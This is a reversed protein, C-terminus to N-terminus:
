FLQKQDQEFVKKKYPKWSKRWGEFDKDFHKHLYEQTKPDTLYGSGFDFGAKKTLAKTLRDRTVKALISAAAVVPHQTDAKFQVHIDVGPCRERIFEAYANLNRSPCDIIAKKPQLENIMACTQEAELWNLNNNAVAADIQKVSVTRISHNLGTLQEYFAERQQKTLVKSDKVGAPIDKDSAHIAAMVMPGIIPGRGAEDIGCYM